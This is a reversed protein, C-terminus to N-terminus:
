GSVAEGASRSREALKDVAQLITLPAHHHVMHGDNPLVYLESGPIADYLRLSHRTVEVIRDGSGAVIITPQRIDEYHTQLAATAPLVMTLDEASARIHEPRVALGAPFGKRFGASVPRPAFTRRLLRPLLARVVIPYLTNRLLSGIVPIAPISLLLLESRPTPFYFGGVLLMGNVFGPHRLALELVVLTGWSHGVLIAGKVGLRLLAAHILDAQAAPTWAVSRPRDSYGFGPRDFAVVRYRKALKDVIGSVEMEQIMSGNGHFLVVAPDGGGTDIYHLRVGEVTIFNGPPPHKREARRTNLRVVVASAAMTVGAFLLSVWLARKAKHAIARRYSAEPLSTEMEALNTLSAKPKDLM